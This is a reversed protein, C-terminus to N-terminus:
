RCAGIKASAMDYGLAQIEEAAMDKEVYAEAIPDLIDYPPLSDTDRQNLKLEASPEKDLINQPIVSKPETQNRYKALKYVLTKPVDKLVAFGGVMDGYLTAYGVSMESKNGTALVLWGHKNSLAMLLNGRIRAQLNEETEDPPLDGFADRLLKLYHNFVEQIPIGGFNVGLNHALQQADQYSTESSFASPMYVAEVNENGLADSAIVATLASDIGGSLGIVVRVFGNKHVYDKLGLILAHYIEAEHPFIPPKHEVLFPRAKAQEFGTFGIQGATPWRYSKVATPSPIDAIILDEEFQRGYAILEGKPNIIMGHGDFILEDQGGILNNYAIWVGNEKARKALLQQRQKWKGMHYPSASLNIIIRAGNQVQQQIPGKDFWIDECINVGIGTGLLNFVPLRNGSMFYRQEDFVGYNPLCVKHYIGVITGRHIIAAANYIHNDRRDVFGLILVHRQKESFRILEDVCNLNRDIFRSKFLLDEPPYGTIALEPFSVVDVGQTEAQEIYHKIKATNGELDGVTCNIQAMGFRLRRM